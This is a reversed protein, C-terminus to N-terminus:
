AARARWAETFEFSFVKDDVVVNVAITITNLAPITPYASISTALKTDAMWKLDAEAADKVRGLNASTLPLSRLLHQTRSRMKREALPEGKNLCWERSVDGEQGPDEQNGGFLSLYAANMLGDTMTALGNVYEIEGGDPTPLLLVDTM